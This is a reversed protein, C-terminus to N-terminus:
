LMLRTIIIIPTAPISSAIRAHPWPRHPWILRVKILPGAFEDDVNRDIRVLVHQTPDHLYGKHCTWRRGAAV